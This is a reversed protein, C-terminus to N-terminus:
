RRHDHSTPSPVSEFRMEFVHGKRDRFPKIGATKEEVRCAVLVAGMGIVLPRDVLDEVVGAQGARLRERGAPPVYPRPPATFLHSGVSAYQVVAGAGANSGLIRSAV